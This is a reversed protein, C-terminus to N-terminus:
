SLALRGNALEVIAKRLESPEVQLRTAVAELRPNERWAPRKIAYSVLGAKRCEAVWFSATRIPIQFHEGVAKTPPKRDAVAQLWVRAIDPM